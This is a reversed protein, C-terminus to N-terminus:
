VKCTNRDNLDDFLCKFLTPDIQTFESQVFIQFSCSASNNAADFFEYRIFTTESFRYPSTIDRPTKELRLPEGSNDRCSPTDFYVEIDTMGENLNAYHNGPCVEVIPNVRDTLM